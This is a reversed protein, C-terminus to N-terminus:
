RLSNLFIPLSCALDSLTYTAQNNSTTQRNKVRVHKRLTQVPSRKYLTAAAAQSRKDTGDEQHNGDHNNSRLFRVAERQWYEDNHEDDSDNQGENYQHTASAHSLQKRARIVLKNGSQASNQQQRHIGLNM